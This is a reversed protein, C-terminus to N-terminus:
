VIQFHQYYAFAMWSNAILLMLMRLQMNDAETTNVANMNNYIITFVFTGACILTIVGVSVVLIKDRNSMIDSDDNQFWNDVSLKLVGFGIVVSLVIVVVNVIMIWPVIKSTDDKFNVIIYTIIWFVFFSCGLVCFLLCFFKKM